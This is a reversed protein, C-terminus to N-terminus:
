EIELRRHAGLFAETEARSPAGLIGGFRTCKLAAAAAAVTLADGLGCGEALALTFAGHFVDGAGLTDVAAVLFARAVRLSSGELWLIDDAGNTVAVFTSIMEGARRLAASLETLGSTTRLAESSFIVHSSVDFLPDDFETARDVDLVVPIGCRAAATCIPAVFEPFRNDVLLADVGAVLAAPDRPRLEALKEGRRTAVMKEGDRDIFIGSVSISGGQAIEVGKCDIGEARMAGLFRASADDSGLPGAFRATGDLRAIAVAANAACGGATAVLEQAHVKAGPEPFTEVKFLFDEVAIGACLVVPRKRYKIGSIL